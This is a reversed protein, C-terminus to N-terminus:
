KKLFVEICRLAAVIVSTIAAVYVAVDFGWITGTTVVAPAIAMEVTKIIKECTDKTM